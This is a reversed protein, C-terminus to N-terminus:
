PKAEELAFKAFSIANEYAMEISERKSCGWETFGDDDVEMNEPEVMSAIDELCSKMVSIKRYLERIEEDTEIPM